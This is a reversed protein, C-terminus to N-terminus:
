ENIRRGDDLTRELIFPTSARGDGIRTFALVQISYNTYKELYDLELSPQATTVNRIEGLESAPCLSWPIM